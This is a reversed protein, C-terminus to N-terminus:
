CTLAVVSIDCLRVHPGKLTVRLEQTVHNRYMEFKSTFEKEGDWCTVTGPVRADGTKDGLHKDREGAMM